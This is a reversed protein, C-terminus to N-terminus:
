FDTPMWYAFVGIEESEIRLNLAQLIQGFEGKFDEAGESIKLAGDYRDLFAYVKDALIGMEDIFQETKVTDQRRERMEKLLESYFLSAEATIHENLDKRFISLSELVQEASFGNNKLVGAISGLRSQLNRHQKIMITIVSSKDSM